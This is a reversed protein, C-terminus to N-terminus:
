DNFEVLYGDSVSGHWSGLLVSGNGAECTHGLKNITLNPPEGHIVWCRHERDDPLTCNKARKDPYWIGGPTKIGYAPRNPLNDWELGLNLWESPTPFITGAGFEHLRKFEGTDMREFLLCEAISHIRDEPEILTRCTDCHTPWEPHQNDAWYKEREARESASLMAVTAEARHYEESGPCTDFNAITVLTVLKQGSPQAWFCKTLKSM